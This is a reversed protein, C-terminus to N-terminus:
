THSTHSTEYFFGVTDDFHRLPFFSCNHFPPFFLDRTHGVICPFQLPMVARAIPSHIPPSPLPPSRRVCPRFPLLPLPPVSATLLHGCPTRYSEGGTRLGQPPWRVPAPRLPRASRGPPPLAFVSAPDWRNSECVGTPTSSQPPTDSPMSCGERRRWPPCAWFVSFPKPFPPRDRSIIRLATAIVM